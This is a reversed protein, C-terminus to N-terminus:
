LNPNTEREGPPIPFCLDQRALHSGEQASGSPLELPDLAGPTNAEKWRRLDGLRRGELWLVIGRERKLATWGETINAATVAAVGAATRLGNIKDLAGALDNARLRAEAEILRMEAGSALNIDAGADRYKTQPWWPVRGCCDIAADGTSDAASKRLSVRPDNTSHFYAEIWTNWQTHGRYPRNATAWQIRNRQDDSGIDHYAIRYVFSTPVQGADSVAETWKGLHVRVSARGALAATKVDGAGGDAAKTFAAEAREFYVTHPQAAGGDIVAQCYHEGLLRNSFGAYLNAQALTAPTQPGATEIREVGHEALWRATAGEEWHDDLDRDDEALEGRQWRPTIGFSGTSGAPHIERAVAASTYGLWNLGQALARGMGNLLAGQATKEDLFSDQVPGPNQVDTDCGSAAVLGIAAGALLARTRKRAGHNGQPRNMTAM